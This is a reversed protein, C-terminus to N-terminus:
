LCAGGEQVFPFYLGTLRLVKYMCSLEICCATLPTTAIVANSCVHWPVAIPLKRISYVKHQDDWLKVLRRIARCTTQQLGRVPHSTCKKCIFNNGTQLKSLEHFSTYAQMVTKHLDSGCGHPTIAIELEDYM